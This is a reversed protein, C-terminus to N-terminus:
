KAEFMKFSQFRVLWSRSVKRKSQTQINKNHVEDIIRHRCGASLYINSYEGARAQINQKPFAVVFYFM